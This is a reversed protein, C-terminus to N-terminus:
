YNFGKLHQDEKSSFFKLVLLEVIGVINVMM